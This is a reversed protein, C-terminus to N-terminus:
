RTSLLEQWSKATLIADVMRELRELDQLVQLARKTEADPAGFQRAGLRLLLNIEGELRGEKRGKALSEEVWVDYATSEHMIRVGQYIPGLSEKPLRSGALIFSANMLRVARAHDVEQVLRRDIERVIDRLGDQLDKGAPTQCLTALPLLGM